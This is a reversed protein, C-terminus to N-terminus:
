HPFQFQYKLQRKPHRAGIQKNNGERLSDYFIVRQSETILEEQILLHSQM